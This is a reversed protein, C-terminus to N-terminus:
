DEQWKWATWVILAAVVIQIIGVLILYIGDATPETALYEIPGVLSLGAFIVGVIINVWRNAKDKLSVSLVPMIAPILMIIAMFLIIEATIPTGESEGAIIEEIVGPRYLDLPAVVIMVCFYSLWLVALKTKVNEM